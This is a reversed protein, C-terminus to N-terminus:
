FSKVLVVRIEILTFGKVTQMKLKKVLDKFKKM